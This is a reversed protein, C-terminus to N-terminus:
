PTSLARLGQAARANDPELELAAAFAQAAREPQGSWVLAEGLEVQVAARYPAPTQGVLIQLHRVVAEPRGQERYFAVVLRRGEVFGPYLALAREFMSAAEAPRQLQLYMQGANFAAIYHRPNMALTQQFHELALETEGRLAYANALNNHALDSPAIAVMRTFLPEVGRWHWTLRQTVFCSVLLLGVGLPVLLRRLEPRYEALHAAGYVLMAAIGLGPIYTYRDAMAQLGVQVLGIVPVLTLLYWAWGAALYPARRRLLWCVLTLAALLGACLLARELSLGHGGHPYYPILEDPWFMKGLYGVYSQLANAVRLLPPLEELSGMAERQALMTVVSSAASLALLPLKELLLRKPSVLPLGPTGFPWAGGGGLRLRGLPWFDLCLLALPLTVLMPKAMLGLALCAFVAAYRWRSLTRVYGLYLLMCLAWFLGSLVDKREALWAVSEVRLPHVAFFAALFFAPWVRGGTASRFFWYFLLAAVAHLLVNVVHHGGPELGFLSVDLMHSLWTLPHWNSAYFSTFAQGVAQLTLGQTVMPNGFIYQKDDYHVYDLLPARWFAAAVLVLLLLPPVAPHRLVKMAFRHM